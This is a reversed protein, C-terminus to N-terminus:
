PRLAMSATLWSSLRTPERAILTLLDARAQSRSSWGAIDLANRAFARYKALAQVPYADGLLDAYTQVPNFKAQDRYCALIISDDRRHHRSAASLDSVVADLVTAMRHVSSRSDPHVRYRLLREPLCHIEGLLMMRWWLDRDEAGWRFADRYGGVAVLAPRRVMASPHCLTPPSPPFYAFGRCRDKVVLPDIPPQKQQATGDPGIRTFASGVAVCRPTRDLYDAQREFRAPECIDDADMRAVYDGRANAIALNLAAVLGRNATTIVRVRRDHAALEALVAATGDTSGDDIAVLEFDSLTQALVSRVAQAITRAGNYVPLAVSVKPTDNM